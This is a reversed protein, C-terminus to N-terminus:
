KSMLIRALSSYLTINKTIGQFVLYKYNEAPRFYIGFSSNLNYYLLVGFHTRM